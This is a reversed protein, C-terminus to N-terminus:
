LTLQVMCISHQAIARPRLTFGVGPTRANNRTIGPSFYVVCIAGTIRVDALQQILRPGEGVTYKYRARAGQDAGGSPPTRVSGGDGVLICQYVVLPFIFFHSRDLFIFRSFSIPDDTTCELLQFYNILFCASPANMEMITECHAVAINCLQGSFFERRFGLSSTDLSLM